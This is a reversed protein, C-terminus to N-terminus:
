LISKHHTASQIQESQTNQYCLYKIQYCLHYCLNQIRPTEMWNWKTGFSDLVVANNLM